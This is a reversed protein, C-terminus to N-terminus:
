VLQIFDILIRQFVRWDDDVIEVVEGGRAVHIFKQSVSIKRVDNDEIIIWSVRGQQIPIWRQIFM